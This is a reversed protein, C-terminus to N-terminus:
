GVVGEMWNVVGDEPFVLQYEKILGRCLAHDGSEYASVINEFLPKHTEVSRRYAEPQASYASCLAVGLEKGKLPLKGLRRYSLGATKDQQELTNHTFLVQANLSKCIGELRSAVNVTDGIMTTNLRTDSGLTGPNLVGANIRGHRDTVSIEKKRLRKCNLGVHM